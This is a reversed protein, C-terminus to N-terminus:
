GSDEFSKVIKIIDNMEDNSIILTTTGSGFIKKHIGAYAASSAATSGLPILISKALTKIVNKVLPLGKKLLPGPLRGLFRGSQIMKSIQTKSLKIDTSLYNAFAKRLNAVQRNTLLLKHPFNTENDGIMNSSLRLAVVTENKIASKLKNLQSNSLKVNLSNYQIM